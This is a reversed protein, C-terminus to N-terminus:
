CIKVRKYVQINKTITLFTFNHNQFISKRRQILEGM